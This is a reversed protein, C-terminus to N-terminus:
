IEFKEQVYERSLRLNEELSRTVETEPEHFLEIIAWGSWGREKLHGAIATYDIEGDGVAETCVGNQMNRIHLTAVREGAEKLIALPDQDGRKAWMLDICLPLDTHELIHRWERADEMMEPDHHHVLLRMGKEGLAAGLENLAKAQTALEEDTKLAKKPKPTPNTNIASVGIPKVADAVALTEGITERAAAATHMPGGHYCIPVHLGHEELLRVTTDRIEPAFFSSMFEANEFGAARCGAIVDGAGEEISRGQKRLYQTWVYVQVALRPQYGAGRLVAANAAGAVFDRRTLM